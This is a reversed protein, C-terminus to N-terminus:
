VIIAGRSAGVSPLYEFSDMYNPYFCRLYSPDFDERKKQRRFVSLTVNVNM